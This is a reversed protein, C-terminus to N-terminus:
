GVVSTRYFVVSLLVVGFEHWHHRNVLLFWCYCRFTYLFLALFVLKSINCLECCILSMLSKCFFYGYFCHAIVCCFVFTFCLSLYLHVDGVFM